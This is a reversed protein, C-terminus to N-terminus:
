VVWLFFMAEEEVFIVDYVRMRMRLGVWGM